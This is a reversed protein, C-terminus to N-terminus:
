DDFERIMTVSSTVNRNALNDFIFISNGATPATIQVNITDLASLSNFNPPTIKIEGTSGLVVGRDALVEVARAQVDAATAGRRTGIRCAEFCCVSVSEKLYLGATIELTGMMLLIILPFCIAAEVAAAGSRNSSTPGFRRRRRHSRKDTSRRNGFPQRSFM